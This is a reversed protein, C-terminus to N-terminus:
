QRGEQVAQVHKREERSTFQGAQGSPNKVPAPNAPPTAEPGPALVLHYFTCTNSGRGGNEEGRWGAEGERRWWGPTLGLREEEASVLCHFM